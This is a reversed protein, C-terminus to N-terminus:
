LKEGSEVESFDLTMDVWKTKPNYELRINASKKYEVVQAMFNCLTNMFFLGRTFHEIKFHSKSFEELAKEKKMDEEM